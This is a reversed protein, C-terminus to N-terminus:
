RVGEKGVRREESRPDQGGSGGIASIGAMIEDVREHHLRRLKRNIEVYRYDRDPTFGVLTYARLLSGFRSHYASSSPCSEAEDIILGTLYGRDELIKRLQELM